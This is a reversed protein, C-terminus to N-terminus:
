SKAASRHSASFLRGSRRILGVAATTPPFTSITPPYSPAIWM